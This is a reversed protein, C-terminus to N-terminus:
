QTSERHTASLLSKLSFILISRLNLKEAAGLSFLWMTIDPLFSGLAKKEKLVPGPVM